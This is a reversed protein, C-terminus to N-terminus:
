KEDTRFEFLFFPFFDRKRHLRLDRDASNVSASSVRVSIVASYQSAPAAGPSCAPLPAHDVVAAFQLVAASPEPFRTAHTFPDSATNAALPAEPTVILVPTVARDTVNVPVPYVTDPLWSVSLPTPVIVAL